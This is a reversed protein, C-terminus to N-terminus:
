FKKVILWQQEFHLALLKGGETRLPWRSVPIVAEVFIMETSVKRRRTKILMALISCPKAFKQRESGFNYIIDADDPTHICFGDIM